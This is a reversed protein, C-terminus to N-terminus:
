ESSLGDIKIPDSDPFRVVLDLEGGLGEIYKRLTSVLVDPRKEMRSINEQTIGLTQAIEVQTLDRSKRMAQLTKYEKVLALGKRQGEKIQDLTMNKKFVDDASVAM